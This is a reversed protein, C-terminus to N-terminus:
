AEEQEFTLCVTTGKGTASHIELKGGLLKARDRMSRIGYNMSASGPDFGHGNDEITIHNVKQDGKIEIRVRTARAHRLINSLSEQIIALIHYVQLPRLQPEAEHVLEINFMGRFRPNAILNNLSIMLTESNSPARLSVMYSRLDTNVDKLVASAQHLRKALETGEEIAPQISELILSASYIGQIAGDHIEQGIREREALQIREVEMEEILRDLEVEFVELARIIVLALFFGLFSRSVQVPIGLAQSFLSYNLVNAPFFDDDPVVLGAFCAYGVLLLAALYLAQHAHGIKLPIIRTRSQYVLGAAALLSGPLCLLYRAWINSLINWGPVYDVVMLSVIWGAGWVIGLLIVAKILWPALEGLTVAGFILLCMFSVALLIVQLTELLQITSAPMYSMQIPIFIEGWEHLGHIVGFAALWRLDRALTLRSHRRSQLFIAFGMLFFTLGYVFLVNTYNISFFERITEM